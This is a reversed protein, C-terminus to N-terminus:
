QIKLEKLLAEWTRREREPEFLAARGACQRRLKNLFQPDTEARLLLTTLERTEGVAFYGSYDAGLLGVTGPICSAILPVGAVIAESIVNAGGELRSSL